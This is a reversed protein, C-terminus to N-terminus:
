VASQKTDRSKPQRSTSFFQLDQGHICGKAKQTEIGALTEAGSAFYYDLAGVALQIRLCDLAGYFHSPKSMIRSLTLEGPKDWCHSRFHIDFEDRLSCSWITHCEKVLLEM